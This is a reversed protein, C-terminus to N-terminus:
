RRNLPIMKIDLEAGPVSAGGKLADLLKKEDIVWYEDPIKSEDQIVLVKDERFSVMGAATIVKSEPTDIAEIKAVATEVKLKGKGEGVRNAIRAEEERVRKVEATQYESISGRLHDISTELITEIPKWRGREAKLAENLPKTVKEKEETIRDLQVNLESLMKSAVEMSKPDKVEIAKAKAVIPSIETQIVAIQKDETTTKKM